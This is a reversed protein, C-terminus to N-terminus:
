EEGEKKRGRKRGSKEKDEMEGGGKKKKNMRKKLDNNEGREVEFGLDAYGSDSQFYYEYVTFIM